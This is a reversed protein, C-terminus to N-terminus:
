LTVCKLLYWLWSQNSRTHLCQDSNIAIYENFFNCRLNLFLAQSQKYYVSMIGHNVNSLSLNQTISWTDNCSMQERVELIWTYMNWRKLNASCIIYCSLFCVTSTNTFSYRIMTSVCAAWIFIQTEMSKGSSVGNIIRIIKDVLCHSSKSLYQLSFSM